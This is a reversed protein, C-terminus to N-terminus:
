TNCFFVTPSANVNLVNVIYKQKESYKDYMYDSTFRNLLKMHINIAIQNVYKYSTLLSMPPIVNNKTYYCLGIRSKGTAFTKSLSFAVMKICSHNVNLKPLKVSGFYAMDLMVPIDLKNCHSIIDSFNNFIDGSASFPYSIILKNNGKIESLDKIVTIGTDRHFPYEGKFVVTKYSPYQQEFNYFAGTVGDTIARDFKQLGSIKFNKCSIIWEHYTNIFEDIDCDHWINTINNLINQVNDDLIPLPKYSIM